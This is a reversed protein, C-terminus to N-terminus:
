LNLRMVIHTKEFNLPKLLKEWGPRGSLELKACGISKAYQILDDYVLMIQKFSHGALLFVSLARVKPYDIVQTLVCGIAKGEGDNYVVWLIIQHKLILKFIDEVTYKGDCYKVGEEIFNVIDKWALEINEPNIPILQM